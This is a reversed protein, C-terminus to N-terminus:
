GLRSLSQLWENWTQQDCEDLPQDWGMGKRCLRQLLMKGPLLWPAVLGLPDYLSSISSLLGRRTAIKGALQLQFVFEDKEADWQIGLTREIPLSSGHFERVNPAREEEPISNLVDRSSSIWKTLHFGGMSLLKTLQKRQGIATTVDDFSKLYDDVYFNSPISLVASKNVYAGYRKATEQLAYNACFPSSIAGFPHVTLRYESAAKDMDNNPWWLLRFADRHETPIKVQLFMEKIDAAVAIRGLRFRCLVEILPTTWDPGQLLRDNLSLGQFKAACDFVVRVKDPKKPNIVPHHPLYWLRQGHNVPEDVKEIYGLEINRQMVEVYKAKLHPVRQLRRKLYQLRKEVMDKNNPIQKSDSRWPLPIEFHSNQVRVGEAVIALADKDERSNSGRENSLDGFEHNYLRELDKEVSGQELSVYNVYATGPQDKKLPGHLAWGFITHAAYPEKKTGVRLDMIWHAEPVDCGILIDVEPRPVEEFPLGQLHSYRQALSKISETARMPLSKTTFAEQAEISQGDTLSTLTM